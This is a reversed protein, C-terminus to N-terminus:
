FIFDVFNQQQLATQKTEDDKEVEVFTHIDEKSSNSHLWSDKMKFLLVQNFTIKTLNSKDVTIPDSNGCLIFLKSAFYCWLSLKITVHRVDLTKLVESGAKNNDTDEETNDASSGILLRAFHWATLSM